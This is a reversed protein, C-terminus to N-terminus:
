FDQVKEMMINRHVYGCPSFYSYNDGKLSLRSIDACRDVSVWFELGKGNRVYLMRMGDGKGGSLRMEEVGDMQLEHGLYKNM